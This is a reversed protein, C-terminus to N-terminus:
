KNNPPQRGAQEALKRVSQVVIKETEPAFFGLDPGFLGRDEYGGERIIKKTPLYGSVDNCYGATWLGEAGLAQKLLPVYESVTEEPLGVLSLSDGFQWVSLPITFKTPLSEGRDLAKLMQRAVYAKAHPASLMKELEVRSPTKRLPLDVWAFATRLPGAVPRMAGSNVRLVEKGLSEGHQEVWQEADKRGYPEPNADAGCGTVFLARAGPLQKEIYRRAAGAYDASIRLNATGFTVNHCAAGFVMARVDGEPTQVRLVPVDRDTHNNPNARMGVYRGNKDLLRRNEFFTAKGVGYHLRAPRLDALAKAALDVLQAKLKETYAELKKRGQPTIPYFDADLFDVAPGSHTHSLNVLIQRRQLGTRESIQKCISNVTPTRLVCIDISFLLARNGHTDEFAMAQALLDDRVGQSPQKRGSYGAMWLSEKPTICTRSLGVRVGPEKGMARTSLSICLTCVVLIATPVFLLHFVFQRQLRKIFNSYM